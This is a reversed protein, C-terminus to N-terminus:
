QAFFACGNNMTEVRAVALHPLYYTAVGRNEQLCQFQIQHEGADSEAPCTHTSTQGYQLAPHCIANPGHGLQGSSCDFPSDSFTGTAYVLGWIGFGVTFGVVVGTLGWGRMMDALTMLRGAAEATEPVRQLERVLDVAQQVGATLLALSTFAYLAGAYGIGIVVQIVGTFLGISLSLISRRCAGTWQRTSGETYTHNYASRVDRGGDAARAFDVGGYEGTAGHLSDSSRTALRLRGIASTLEVSMLLSFIALNSPAVVNGVTNDLEMLEDLAAQPVAEGSEKAICTALLDESMDDGTQIPAFIAKASCTLQASIMITQSALDQWDSVECWTKFQRDVDERIHSHIRHLVSNRVVPESCQMGLGVPAPDGSDLICKFSFVEEDRSWSNHRTTCSKCPAPCVAPDEINTPLLLRRDIVSGRLAEIDDQVSAMKDFARRFRTQAKGSVASALFREKFINSSISHPEAAALVEPLCLKQDAVQSIAAVRMATTALSEVEHSEDASFSCSSVSCRHNLLSTARLMAATMETGLQNCTMTTFRDQDRRYESEGIPNRRRLRDLQYDVKADMNVRHAMGIGHNTLLLVVFLWGTTQRQHQIM